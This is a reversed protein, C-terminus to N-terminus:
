IHGDQMFQEALQALHSFASAVSQERESIVQEYMRKKESLFEFLRRQQLVSPSGSSLRREISDEPNVSRILRIIDRPEINSDRGFADRVESETLEFLPLNGKEVATKVLSGVARHAARFPIRKQSVLMEAIDVSIAYSSLAAKMMQANNIKVGKVIQSLLDLSEQVLCSSNILGPKLEQLDRSYGSPLGKVLSMAGFLYGVVTSSKARILELTDPNKKQPMLSSTSSYKDPIEVYGFETTSWLIFDATVRSLNLMIISLSSMFEFLDDRSTTADISNNLIGKFGLLSSTRDRDINISTGGIACAGLPSINIRNYCDNLRDIDRALNETYSLLFHAFTGLQAHQLHTYMPMISHFHNQSKSLLAGMLSVLARSVRNIADRAMMRIDLIVQDNRSRATQLVGGVDYGLKEVLFAEVCEHIDEFIDNDLVKPDKRITELGSLLDRLAASSLFGIEHLMIAHAESGLLDYFLLHYDVSISSLFKLASKDLSDKTRSRYV